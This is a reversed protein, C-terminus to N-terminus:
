GKQFSQPFEPSFLFAGAPVKTPALQLNTNPQNSQMPCVYNIVASKSSLEISSIFSALIRKATPIDGSEIATDLQARIEAFVLALAEPTIQPVELSRRAKLTKIKTELEAKQRKHEILRSKIEELEGAGEALELLRAISREVTILAKTAKGIENDLENAGLTLQTQVADLWDSIFEPSLIRNRVTNLIAQEAKRANIKRAEPCYVFGKKRDRKGCVYCRYNKSTHLVMGAGCYACRALGALLSPYRMRRAHFESDRKQEVKRVAEWLEWTILPEHHNPVELDGAKGIGLYSKNRFHTIWSGKNVYVKGGTAKIIATYGKGQARMEWALRILPALEEDIVWTIRYRTEGNKLYGGPVKKVKYGKPPTGGNCFGKSVAEHIGRKVHTGLDESYKEDTWAALLLLIYGTIGEPFDQTLSHLVLGEDILASVNRNFKKMNRMFRSTHWILLGRPRLDKPTNTLFDMMQLFEKRNKTKRGSESESYIRLLVLGHTKCYDTIIKSQQEISETQANGGSDRCYAIVVSGPPLSKPPPYLVNSM